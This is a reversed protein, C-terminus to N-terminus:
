ELFRPEGNKDLKLGYKDEKKAVAANFMRM